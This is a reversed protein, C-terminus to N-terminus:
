LFATRAVREVPHHSQYKWLKSVNITEQKSKYTLIIQTVGGVAQPSTVSGGPSFTLTTSQNITAAMM